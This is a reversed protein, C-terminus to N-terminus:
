TKDGATRIKRPQTKRREYTWRGGDRIILLYHHETKPVADLIEPPFIGELYERAGVETLSGAFLIVAKACAIADKPVGQPRRAILIQDKKQHRNSTLANRQIRTSWRIYRDADDMIILGPGWRPCDKLIEDVGAEELESNWLSKVDESKEFAGNPDIAWAKGRVRTGRVYFAALKEAITTKGCGNPGFILITVYTVALGSGDPAILPATNRPM